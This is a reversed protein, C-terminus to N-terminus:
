ASLCDLTETRSATGKKQFDRTLGPVLVSVWVPIGLASSCKLVEFGGLGGFSIRFVVGGIHRCCAGSRYGPEGSQQLLGESLGFGLAETGESIRGCPVNRWGQLGAALFGQAGFKVTLSGRFIM